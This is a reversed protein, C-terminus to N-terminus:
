VFYFIFSIGINQANLFSPIECGLLQDLLWYYLTYNYFQESPIM